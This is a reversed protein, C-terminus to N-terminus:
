QTVKTLSSIQSWKDRFIYPGQVHAYRTFSDQNFRLSLYLLCCLSPSVIQQKSLVRKYRCRPTHKLTVYRTMRAREQMHTYRHHHSLPIEVILFPSYQYPGLPSFVSLLITCNWTIQMWCGIWQTAQSPNAKREHIDLNFPSFIIWERCRCEPFGCVCQGYRLKTDRLENDLLLATTLVLANCYLVWFSATSSKLPITLGNERRLMWLSVHSSTTATKGGYHM